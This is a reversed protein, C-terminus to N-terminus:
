GSNGKTRRDSSFPRKPELVTLARDALYSISVMRPAFGLKRARIGAAFSARLGTAHQFRWRRVVSHDKM